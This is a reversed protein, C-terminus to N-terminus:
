TSFDRLITTIGEGSPPPVRMDQYVLIAQHIFITAHKSQCRNLDLLNLLIFLQIFVSIWLHLLCSCLFTNISDINKSLCNMRLKKWIPLIFVTFQFLVTQYSVWPFSPTVCSQPRHETWKSKGSSGMGGWLQWGGVSWNGILNGGFARSTTKAIHLAATEGVSCLIGRRHRNVFRM